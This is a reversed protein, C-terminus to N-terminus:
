DEEQRVTITRDEERVKTTRSEYKVKSTRNESRVITRDAAHRFYTLTASLGTLVFSGAGVVLRLARKLTASQGSLVFSGAGVVLRLARKFLVDQGSLTFSGADADMTKGSLLAITAVSFPGGVVSVTINTTGFAAANAFIGSYIALRSIDTVDPGASAADYREAQDGGFNVNFWPGQASTSSGMGLIIVIQSNARSTTVSPAVVPTPAVANTDWASTDIGICESFAAIVGYQHDGSDSIVADDSSTGDAIRWFASIRTGGSGPTGSGTPTGIATWGSPTSVAENGSEVVLLLLDYVQRSAPASVTIGADNWNATGVARFAATM